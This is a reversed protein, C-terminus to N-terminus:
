EETAAKVIASAAGTLADAVTPKKTTAPEPAGTVLSIPPPKDYNNWRGNHIVRAWLCLKPPEIDPHKEHLKAFIVETEEVLHDRESKKKKSSPETEQSSGESSRADCWLTIKAGSEFCEYMSTLDRNEVLWRKTNGPPELYGLQFTDTSPVESPFTEMLGAKIEDTSTFM